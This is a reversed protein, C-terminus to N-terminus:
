LPQPSRFERERFRHYENGIMERRFDAPYVRPHEVIHLVEPAPPDGDCDEEYDRM